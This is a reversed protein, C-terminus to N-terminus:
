FEQSEWDQFSGSGQGMGVACDGFWVHDKEGCNGQWDRLHECRISLGLSKHQM